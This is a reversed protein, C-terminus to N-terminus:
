CKSEQAEKESPVPYPHLYGSTEGELEELIRDSREASVDPGM